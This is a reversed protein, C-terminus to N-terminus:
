NKRYDLKNGFFKHLKIKYNIKWKREHIIHRVNTKQEQYQNPL